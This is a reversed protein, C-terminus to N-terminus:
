AICTRASSSAAASSVRRPRAVRDDLDHDREGDGALLQRQGAAPDLLLDVRRRRARLLLEVDRMPVIISVGRAASRASSIASSASKKRKPVLSRVWIVNPKLRSSTSLRIIGRRGRAPGAALAVRELRDVLGADALEHADADLAPRAVLGPGSARRTRRARRRGPTSRAEEVVGPEVVHRARREPHRDGAQGRGLGDDALGAVSASRAARWRSRRESSAASCCASSRRCRRRLQPHPDSSRPRM